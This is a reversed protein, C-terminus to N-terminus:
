DQPSHAALVLSVPDFHTWRRNDREYHNIVWGEEEDPALYVAKTMTPEDVMVEHVTWQGGGLYEPVLLGAFLGERNAIQYYARGRDCGGACELPEPLIDWTGDGWKGSWVSFLGGEYRLALGGRDVEVAAWGGPLIPNWSEGEERVEEMNWLIRHNKPFSVQVGDGAELRVVNEGEEKKGFTVAALVFIMIVACLSRFIVRSTESKGPM